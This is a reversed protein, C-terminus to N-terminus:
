KGAFLYTNTSNMKNLKEAEDAKMEKCSSKEKKMKADFPFSCLFHCLCFSLLPFIHLSSGFNLVFKLYIFEVTHSFIQYPMEFLGCCLFYFNWKLHFLVFSSVSFLMNLDNKIRSSIKNQEENRKNKKGMKWESNPKTAQKKREKRNQHILELSIRM